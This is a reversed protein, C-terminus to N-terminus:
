PASSSARRGRRRRALAAGRGRLRRVDAAPARSGAGRDARQARRGQRRRVLAGRRRRRPRRRRLGSRQGLTYFALGRHEGLVSATRRRSRARERRSSLPALFDRFPREGIFCIGTSDPKDFVPLGARARPARVEDKRLEGLPFLTSALAQPRWATCSTARTRPARGRAKLLQPGAPATTAAACLPRHRDARRRAAAHLRPLRRIQDRPQVARGSEAHPRRRIRAPFARIRARPVRRRLEGPAAPYGLTECVRARTRSTRRPRATPTTTTKGTPCSSDRCRTAPRAAAAAGRGGFRRRRVHRRHGHGPPTASDPRLPAPPM